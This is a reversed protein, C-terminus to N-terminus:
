RRLLRGHGLRRDRSPQHVLVLRDGPEDVEVAHAVADRGQPRAERVMERVREGGLGAAEAAHQPENVLGAHAALHRAQALHLLRQDGADRRVPDHEVEGALLRASIAKAISRPMMSFTSLKWSSSRTSAATRWRRANRETIPRRTLGCTPTPVIAAMLVAVRVEFNPM